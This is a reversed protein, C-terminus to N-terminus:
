SWGARQPGCGGWCLRCCGRRSAKLARDRGRKGGGAPSVWATAEERGEEGLWPAIPAGRPRGRCIGSGGAARPGRRGAAAGDPELVWSRDGLDPM